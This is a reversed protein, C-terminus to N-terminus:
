VLYRQFWDVMAENQAKRVPVTGFICGGHSSDPMRLMESPVGNSRLV